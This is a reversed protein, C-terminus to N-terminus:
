HKKVPTPHDVHLGMLQAPLGQLIRVHVGQGAAKIFFVLFQHSGSAEKSKGGREMKRSGM